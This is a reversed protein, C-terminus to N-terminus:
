RRAASEEPTEKYQRQWWARMLQDPNDTATAVVIQGSFDFAVPRRARAALAVAETCAEHISSAGVVVAHLANPPAGDFPESPALAYSEVIQGTGHCRPCAHKRTPRQLFLARNRTQIM